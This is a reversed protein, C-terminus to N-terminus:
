PRVNATRLHARWPDRDLAAPAFDLCGLHKGAREGLTGTARLPLDILERV